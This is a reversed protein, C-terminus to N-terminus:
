QWDEQYDFPRMLLAPNELPSWSFLRGLSATDGVLVHRFCSRLAFCRTRRKGARCLGRRRSLQPSHRRHEADWRTSAQRSFLLPLHVPADCRHAAPERTCMGKRYGRGASVRGNRLVLVRHSRRRKRFPQSAIRQPSMWVSCDQSIRLIVSCPTEAIVRTPSVPLQQHGCAHRSALM